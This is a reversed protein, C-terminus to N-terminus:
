HFGGKGGDLAKLDHSHELFALKCEPSVTLTELSFHAEDFALKADIGHCVKM